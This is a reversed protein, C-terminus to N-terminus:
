SEIMLAQRRRVSVAAGINSPSPRLAPAVSGQIHEAATDLVAARVDRTERGLLDRM